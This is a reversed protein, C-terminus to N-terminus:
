EERGLSGGCSSGAGATCAYCHRGTLIKSGALDDLRLEWLRRATGNGLRMGLMQNFDCDYVYGLWDVSVLSRCMLRAVVAPNFHEELLKEYRELAGERILQLRFRNIAVNTITLLENFVVGYEDRLHQAYAARLAEQPTPLSPGLPNYVLDLRLGSGPRGYGLANLRRLGAVSAAHAGRGRQRDVNDKLYCPLSAVVRVAQGAFFAPLDEYGAVQQITLNHRVIVDRGLARARAVLRRFCPAMEPAGGTIDVTPVATGALWDLIREAVDPSMVETRKPGADVHCHVCAQNCLRGVNIQLADVGARRLPGVVPAVQEAFTM